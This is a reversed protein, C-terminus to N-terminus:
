ADVTEGDNVFALILVVAVVVTGNVTEPIAECVPLRCSHFFEVPVTKALKEDTPKSM